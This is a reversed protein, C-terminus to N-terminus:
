TIRSIGLFANMVQNSQIARKRKGSQNEVEARFEKFKEFAKFKRKMLYLYGFRSYDDTFTIFYEYSGRAQISVPGCIHLHVLELLEQASRGKTNFPRKTMKGELCSECVPFDDFDWPELLGDKILRQIRNSNIHGM